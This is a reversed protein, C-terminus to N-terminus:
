VCSAYWLPILQCYGPHLSVCHLPWVCNAYSTTVNTISTIPDIKLALSHLVNLPVRSKSHIVILLFIHM